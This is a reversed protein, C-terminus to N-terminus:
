ARSTFKEFLATVVPELTVSWDRAIRNRSYNALRTQYDGALQAAKVLENKLGEVSSEACFINPSYHSLSQKVGHRNTVVVAGSAALDLPPYSPHPTDMLCLGLDMHRVLAAYEAWSLNESIHPRVNGPLVVDDILRGVFHFDWQDHSLVGEELSAVIAQLGRWYLNRLNDPRAYFFFRKKAAAVDGNGFAPFYHSEPFAPEFYM